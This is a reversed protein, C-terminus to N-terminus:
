SRLRAINGPTGSADIVVDAGLSSWNPVSVDPENLVKIRRSGVFLNSDSVYFKESLTGYTSDYNLAYAINGADSNLDNVAVINFDAHLAARRLISRGM